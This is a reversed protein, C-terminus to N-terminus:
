MNPMNERFYECFTNAASAAETMRKMDNFNMNMQNETYSSFTALTGGNGDNVYGDNIGNVNKNSDLLVMVITTQGNIETSVRVM